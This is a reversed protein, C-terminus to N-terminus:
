AAAPKKRRFMEGGFGGTMCGLGGLLAGLLTTAALMGASGIGSFLEGMRGALLGENASNLLWAYGGWLLGVALFGLLFNVPGSFRTWAGALLAVVAIIPWPFYQQAFWGVVLILILFILFRM